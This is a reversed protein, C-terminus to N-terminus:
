GPSMFKRVYTIYDTNVPVEGLERLINAIQGRHYSSHTHVHLLIDRISTMFTQGQTNQYSIKEALSEETAKNLFFDLQTQKKEILGSLKWYVM